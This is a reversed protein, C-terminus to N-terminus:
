KQHQESIEFRLNGAKKLLPLSLSEPIPVPFLLKNYQLINGLSAPLHNRGKVSVFVCRCLWNSILVTWVM